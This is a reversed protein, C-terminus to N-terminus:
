KQYIPLYHYKVSLSLVAMATAYIKGIQQEGQNGATWSGDGSQQKILLERVNKEATEAYKGGSQYMGQAYYYVAYSSHNAKWNLPKALLWDSAGEVLPSEYKGCVQLALLGAATMTFTAHNREPVYSFGSAKKEPLGNRGLRSVYSRQLYAVADDIATKPVKLGDNKASRLAMVKWVTVSLDADKSSPEYRWGGQYQTPKPEKQSSLIVDIAKQCRDHILKDQETSVGMGLLETLMLTTIGHGYMRSGDAGGFYGKDDVRDDRLVYAMAKAMARGEPTPDVPQIGVGAMAMISLSTMTTIHGKDYISGDPKQNKIVFSIARDVSRDTDDKRFVSANNTGSPNKQPEQAIGNLCSLALQAIGLLTVRLSSTISKLFHQPHM